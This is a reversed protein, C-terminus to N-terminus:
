NPDSDRNYGLSARLCVYISDPLNFKAQFDIGYEYDGGSTLKAANEGWVTAEAFMMPGALTLVAM